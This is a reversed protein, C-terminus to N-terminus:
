YQKILIFISSSVFSFSKRHCHNAMWRWSLVFSFVPLQSRTYKGLEADVPAVSVDTMSPVCQPSFQGGTSISCCAEFTVDFTVNCGRTLFSEELFWQGNVKICLPATTSKSGCLVLSGLEIRVVTRYTRLKIPKTFQGWHTIYFPTHTIRPCHPSPPGLVQKWATM